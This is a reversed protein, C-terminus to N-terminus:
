IYRPYGAYDGTRAVAPPADEMLAHDYSMLLAGSHGRTTTSTRLWGFGGMFNYCWVPIGAAGMNTLMECIQEIEHFRRDVIAASLSTLLVGKRTQRTKM